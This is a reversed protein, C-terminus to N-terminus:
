HAQLQHRMAIPLRGRWGSRDSGGSGSGVAVAFFFTV